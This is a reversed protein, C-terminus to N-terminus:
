IFLNAMVQLILLVLRLNCWIESEPDYWIVTPIKVLPQCVKGTSPRVHIDQTQITETASQPQLVSATRSLTYVSHAQAGVSSVFSVAPQIRDM